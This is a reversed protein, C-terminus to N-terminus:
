LNYFPIKVDYVQVNLNPFKRKLIEHMHWAFVQEDLHPIELIKAKIQDFNIWDSWKFDSSIILDYGRAHLENITGIYGSGSLVAIKSLKQHNNNIPFNTRFHDLHLQTKLKQVLEEFTLNVTAASATFKESGYEFHDQLGLYRLIQYSTGYLDCDYNTHMSYAFIKHQKLTKILQQKYPAKINEAEKTKEFLFPHHTLILNANEKIAEAVVEATLDIALIVGTLKLSQNFKVSFGSPDWIEKNKNPYLSDLYTIFNKITM